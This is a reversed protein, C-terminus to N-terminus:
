QNYIRDVLITIGLKINSLGNDFILNIKLFHFEISMLFIESNSKSISVRLVIPFSQDFPKHPIYITLTPNSKVKM